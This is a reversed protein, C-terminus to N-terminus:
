FMDSSWDLLTILYNFQLNITETESARRASSKDLTIVLLILFSNYIYIDFDQAIM